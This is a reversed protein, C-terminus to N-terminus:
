TRFPRLFASRYSGYEGRLRNGRIGQRRGHVCGGRGHARSARGHCTRTRGGGKPMM